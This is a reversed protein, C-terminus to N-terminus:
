AASDKCDREYSAVAAREAPAVLDSFYARRVRVQALDIALRMVQDEDGAEAAVAIQRMHDFAEHEIHRRAPGSGVPGPEDSRTSHNPRTTRFGSRM